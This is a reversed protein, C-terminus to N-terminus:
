SATAAHGTSSAADHDMAAAAATAAAWGDGARCGSTIAHDVEELVIIKFGGCFICCSSVEQSLTVFLHMLILDLTKNECFCVQMLQPFGLGENWVRNHLSKLWELEVLLEVHNGVLIKDIKERIKKKLFQMLILNWLKTEERFCVQMSQSVWFGWELSLQPRIETV